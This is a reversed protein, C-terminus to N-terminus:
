VGTRGPGTQEFMPSSEPLDLPEQTGIYTQIFATMKDLISNARNLDYAMLGSSLRASQCNALEDRFLSFLMVLDYVSENEMNPVPTNELLPIEMPGTEPLDLLPQSVVWTMYSKLSQIYRTVRAVDFAMTQSIGSSQSKILEAMFRNVRRHISHIDTNCVRDTKGVYAEAM